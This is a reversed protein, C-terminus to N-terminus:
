MLDLSYGFVTHFFSISSHLTSDLGPLCLHSVTPHHRDPLVVLPAVVLSVSSATIPIALSYV